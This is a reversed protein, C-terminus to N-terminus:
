ASLWELRNDKAYLTATAAILGGMLALCINDGQLIEARLAVYEVRRDDLKSGVTDVEMKM